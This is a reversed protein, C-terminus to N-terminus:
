KQNRTVNNCGLETRTLVILVSVLCILLYFSLVTMSFTALNKCTVLLLSNASYQDLLFLPTSTVKLTVEAAHPRRFTVLVCSM